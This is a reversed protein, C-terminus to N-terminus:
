SPLVKKVPPKKKKLKVEANYEKWWRFAKRKEADTVIHRDLLTLNPLAVIVRM